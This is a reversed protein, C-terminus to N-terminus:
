SALRRKRGAAKKAALKAKPSAPASASKGEEPVLIKEFLKKFDIFLAEAPTLSHPKFQPLRELFLVPVAVFGRQLVRDDGGWRAVIDRRRLPKESESVAASDGESKVTKLAM